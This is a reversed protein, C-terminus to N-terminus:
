KPVKDDDDDDSLGAIESEDGGMSKWFKIVVEEAFKKREEPPLGEAKVKMDAFQSFLEEYSNDELENYEPENSSSKSSCDGEEEEKEEKQKEKESEIQSKLKRNNESKLQLNPWTHAHLAQIIRNIGIVDYEDESECEENLEVFEFGNDLTWHIIETRSIPDSEKCNECILLLVQPSSEKIQSWLKSVKTLCDEESTNFTIAIANTRELVSSSLISTKSACLNIKSTYYKTDIDWEYTEIDDQVPDVQPTSVIQKIITNPPSEDCSFFIACPLEEQAM